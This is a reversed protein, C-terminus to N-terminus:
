VGTVVEMLTITSIPRVTVVADSDDYGRNIYTTYGSRANATVKYTVESTTVPNDAFKLPVTLVSNSGDRFGLHGSTCRIRNNGAVGIGIDVSGRRLGLGSENASGGGCSVSADVYITSSTSKPTITAQIQTDTLSTATISDAESISVSVVQRIKGGAFEQIFGDGYQVGPSSDALKVLGDAGSLTVRTTDNTQLKLDGSTSIPKVANAKLTSM